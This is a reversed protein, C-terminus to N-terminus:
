AGDYAGGCASDDGCEDVDVSDVYTVTYDSDAVSWDSEAVDALAAVAWYGVWDDVSSSEYM